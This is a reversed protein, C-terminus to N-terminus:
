RQVQIQDEVAEVGPTDRAIQQALGRQRASGKGTLTLTRRFAAVEIGAGKMERHLSFALRVQMELAHDDFSEGLSRGGSEAPAAGSTAIRLHSVVQRVEPVAEALQTALDKLEASAVDGRLTVVGEEASVGIAFPKLNRNLALAAKVQATLKVDGIGEGLEELSRPRRGTTQYKWYYLGGGVLVVIVVLAFLRRLM